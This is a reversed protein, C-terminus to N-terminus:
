RWCGTGGYFVPYMYPASITQRGDGPIPFPQDSYAYDVYSPGMFEERPVRLMAQAMGESKVYGSQMYRRVMQERQKPFDPM